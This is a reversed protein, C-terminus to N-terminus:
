CKLDNEKPHPFTDKDEEGRPQLCAFDKEILIKLSNQNASIGVEDSEALNKASDIPVSIQIKGNQFSAITQEIKSTSISYVFTEGNGFDTTEKVENGTALSTIETQNLRFRLSNGRIRLKM